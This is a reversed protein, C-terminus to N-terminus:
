ADELQSAFTELLKHKLIKGTAASPYGDVIVLRQPVKYGTLREHLWATIDGASVSGDTVVFACIEEDGKVPRGVVAAQFVNPHKTLMGEIEPPYVNFGSRIILEKLRGVIHLAGTEDIRALDGSRFWGEADLVDATREPDRYYGQMVNPGRIELEGIGDAGPDRLRIEIDGVPHGVSVDDRPGTGRTVAVTPSTETLGYGNNLACGMLREARAKLEPDLPAGGSTMHRLRPATLEEGQATLQAIIAAFMQPVGPFHTTGARLLAIIEAVDFRPVFRVPCGSLMSALWVSGFLYIHTGPLVALMDDGPGAANRESTARANAILNGHSLMVGKPASTTGTTYILAAIQADTPDVPEPQADYCPSLLIPGCPLAGHARAGLREAHAQAANSADATFTIMRAGSHARIAELETATQRANVLTLWVDMRSAAIITVAYYASNEAVLILRDGPRLGNAKFAAILEDSMRRLDGHSYPTGDHDIVAPLADPHHEMLQHLRM